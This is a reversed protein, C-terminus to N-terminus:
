LVDGFHPRLRRFVMAGFIFILGVLSWFFVAWKWRQWFWVNYILSDRYGQIIYYFPNLKLLFHFREPIMRTSWFIPTLWFGFQLIVNIIQVLDRFFIVVSSTFWGISLVLIITALLYYPLQLWYITPFKGYIIYIFLLLFVFFLHIILASIVQVIPLLSVRFVMKKVLFSQNIISGTASNISESIFFWPIMGSILWLIFPFNDVPVSKFGVQFVFWLILITILPQIFAWLIGLYNGVYRKKFDSRALEWLLKRSKVIDLLFFCFNRFLEFVKTVFNM